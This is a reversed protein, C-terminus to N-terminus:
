AAAVARKGGPSNTGLSRGLGLDKNSKKKSTDSLQSGERHSPGAMGEQSPGQRTIQSNLGYNGACFDM